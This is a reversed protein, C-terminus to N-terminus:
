PDICYDALIKSLPACNTYELRIVGLILPLNVYWVEVELKRPEIFVFSGSLQLTLMTKAIM